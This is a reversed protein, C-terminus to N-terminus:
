SVLELWRAPFDPMTKATCSIDQVTVAPVALGLVAGFTAMRHDAYSHVQGGSTVPSLVRFGDETEEALGGLRRIETVLAAIRDTEHGRLHGVSTFKTEEACLAALAAVTPTLEATGDVVGPSVLQDPGRVTLRGTSASTPVLEVQCGFDALLGGGSRDAWRRGIQTSDLPWGPMSVEGATVAAACLFPGANSLDPEVRVTFPPIPGPQVQWTYPEPSDVALGLERLVKVTMEVHELSPVQTGSHELRLGQPFRPAALLLGSVFQSSASADITVESGTLGAPAHVTFPLFGPTAADDIHTGLARLGELVAGMPRVRAEPDGDFHVQRGTLAAVAPLFRMVTGALGCDISVPETGAGPGSFPIPTIRVASEATDQWDPIHEVHAGLAKLATLMLRSDRSELPNIVVCPGAALAALLLYRNTLSKSAPVRVEGRVASGPHPANWPGPTM